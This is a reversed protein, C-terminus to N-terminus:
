INLAQLKENIERLQQELDVDEETTEKEKFELSSFKDKTEHKLMKPIVPRPILLRLNKISNESLKIRRALEIKMKLETTRMSHYDRASKLMRLLGAELNLIDSKTQLGESYELKIHVLNENAM